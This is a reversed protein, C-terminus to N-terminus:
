RELRSGISVATHHLSKGADATKACVRVAGRRMLEGARKAGKAAIKGAFPAAAMVLVMGATRAVSSMFVTRIFM